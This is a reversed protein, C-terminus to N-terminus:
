SGPDPRVVLTEGVPIIEDAPLGARSAHEQIAKLSSAQYVCVTGLDGDEESVVYSRIWRVDDSMKEGEATSRAAAEALEAETAWGSRRRIIYTDM